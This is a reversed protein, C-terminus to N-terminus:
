RAANTQQEGMSQALWDVFARARAPPRRGSPYVAWVDVTPLSWQELVPAVAGSALEAEFMRSSVVALGLDALVAARLAEAASVTITGKLTVPTARRGRRFTWRNPHRFGTYSIIPYHQLAAPSQPQGHQMLFRSSGVVLRHATDIRRAVLTSDVLDGARIGLDVGEEVLNVQRDDLVFEISLGPHAAAFTGLRPIIQASAYVPPASVRLRGTLAASADRAAAEAADAEDLVIRAREYFRQGANTLSHARTTRVLLRVGLYAELSAIAKSVAPQGTNLLRAAASFSGTDVVTVYQRMALLRDM